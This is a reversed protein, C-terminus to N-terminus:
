VLSHYLVLLDIYLDNLELLWPSKAAGNIVPLVSVERGGETQHGSCFKKIYSLVYRSAISIKLTNHQSKQVDGHETDGCLQVDHWKTM